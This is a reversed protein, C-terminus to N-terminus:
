SQYGPVLGRFYQVIEETSYNGSVSGVYWYGGAHLALRDFEETFVLVCITPQDISIDWGSFSTTYYGDALCHIEGELSNTGKGGSRQIDKIHDFPAINAKFYGNQILDDHGNGNINIKVSSLTNGSNDLKVASLEISAPISKPCFVVIIGWFVLVALIFLIVFFIHKKIM